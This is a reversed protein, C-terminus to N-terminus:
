GRTAPRTAAAVSDVAACVADGRELPVFHTTGALREAFICAPHAAITALDDPGVTSGVEGAVIAFPNKLTVLAAEVHCSVGRFTAAEFAPTCALAVGEPVDNLGGDLYADLDADSWSRFVGRGAYAARVAARSPFVGRRKGAQEAMPNPPSVGTRRIVRAADFPMLAPDALVVGAVRDPARTAALLSVTGGLSHGALLWSSGADITDILVILDDAFDEWRQPHDPDAPLRTHGHGRFDSAVIRYRDALPALLRAYLRANMGTAHAFHLRPASAPASDWVLAAVHGATTEIETQRM